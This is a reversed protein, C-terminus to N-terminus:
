LTGGIQKIEATHADEATAYKGLAAVFKAAMARCHEVRAQLATDLAQGSARIQDANGSSAYELGPGRTSALTRAQQRDDAFENALDNWERALERLTEVDYQFGAGGGGSGSGSGSGSGPGSGYSGAHPTGNPGPLQWDKSPDYIEGM